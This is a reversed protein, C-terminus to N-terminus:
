FYDLFILLFSLFIRIGVGTHIFPIRIAAVVLCESTSWVKTCFYTFFIYFRFGLMHGM